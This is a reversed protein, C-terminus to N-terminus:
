PCPYGYERAYWHLYLLVAKTNDSEKGRRHFGRTSQSAFMRGNSVDKQIAQLMNHSVGFM